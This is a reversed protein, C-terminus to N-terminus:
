VAAESKLVHVASIMNSFHSMHLAAPKICTINVHFEIELSDIMVM